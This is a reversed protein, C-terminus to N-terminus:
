LIFSDLVKNKKDKIINKLLISKYITSFILKLLKLSFFNTKFNYHFRVYQDYVLDGLLVGSFSFNNVLWNKKLYFFVFYVIFFYIFFELYFFSILFKKKTRKLHIIKDFKFLSIIFNTKKNLAYDTCFYSKCKHRSKLIRSAFSSRLDSDLRGRFCVLINHGM